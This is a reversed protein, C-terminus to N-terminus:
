LNWDIKDIDSIPIRQHRNQLMLSEISDPHNISSDNNQSLGVMGSFFDVEDM